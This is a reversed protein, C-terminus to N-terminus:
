IRPSITRFSPAPGAVFHNTFHSLGSHSLAHFARLRVRSSSLSASSFTIFTWGPIKLSTKLLFVDLYGDQFQVDLTPITYFRGQLSSRDFLVSNGGQISMGLITKVRNAAIWIPKTLFWGLFGPQVNIAKGQALLSSDESESSAGSTTACTVGAKQQHSLRSVM